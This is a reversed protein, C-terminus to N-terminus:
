RLEFAETRLDLLEQDDPFHELGADVFTSIEGLVEDFRLWPTMRAATAARETSQAAHALRILVNGKGIWAARFTPQLRIAEEFAACARRDRGHPGPDMTGDAPLTALTWGLDLWAHPDEPALETLRRHAAEAEALERGDRHLIGLCRWANTLEPQQDIARQFALEAEKRQGLQTLAIGQNVHAEAYDPNLRLTAAYEDLARRPERLQLLMNGANYHDVYTPRIAISRQFCQLAQDFEGRREHCLGKSSWGGINDPAEAVFAAWEAIAGDLDGAAELAAAREVRESM